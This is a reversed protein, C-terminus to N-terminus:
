AQIQSPPLRLYVTRNQWAAKSQTRWLWCLSRVLGGFDNSAITEEDVFVVGGHDFGEEALLTLTTWLTAQDYTVLTLKELAAQQLIELDPAGKYLGEHWCHLSLIHIGPCYRRAQVTVKDSIQEDTLLRLM